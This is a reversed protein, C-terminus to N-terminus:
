KIHCTLCVGSSNNGTPLRLFTTNNSHPDHCSACEVFPQNGGPVTPEIRSYLPLDDKQQGAIGNTEVWWVRTNNKLLRNGVQGITSGVRKSPTSSNVAQAFYPDDTPGTLTSDSVGGGGYQISVPHDNSLDVGIFTFKGATALSGVPSATAAAGTWTGGLTTITGSGPTNIMVNMAQTGDHCSLCAISVSGTPAALADFSTTGLSDYTTYASTATFGRNWIPAPKTTATNAGHPTHCFVCIENTGSFKNNGAVGTSGLNHKTTSISAMAVNLMLMLTLGGALVVGLKRNQCPFINAGYRPYVKYVANEGLINKM